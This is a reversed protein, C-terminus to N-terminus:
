AAPPLDKDYSANGSERQFVESLDPRCISCIVGEGFKHCDCNPLIDEEEVEPSTLGYVQALLKRGEEATTATVIVSGDPNVHSKLM